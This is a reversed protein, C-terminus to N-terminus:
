AMCCVIRPTKFSPFSLATHHVFKRYHHALSELLPVNTKSGLKRPIPLLGYRHVGDNAIDAGLINHGPRITMLVHDYIFSAATLAYTTSFSVQEAQM